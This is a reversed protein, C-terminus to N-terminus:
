FMGQYFRNDGLLVSAWWLPSAANWLVDFTLAYDRTPDQDITLM